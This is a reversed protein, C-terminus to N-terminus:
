SYRPPRRLVAMECAIDLARWNGVNIVHARNYILLGIQTCSGLAGYQARGSGMSSVLDTTYADATQHLSWLDM